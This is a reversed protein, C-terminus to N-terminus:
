VGAAAAGGVRAHQVHGEIEAAAASGVRFRQVHGEVEAAAAGGFRASQVHGEVEAAAAGEVQDLQVHGEVEAAAAGRVGLGVLLQRSRAASCRFQHYSIARDGSCAARLVLLMYSNEDVPRREWKNLDCGRARGFGRHLLVRSERM